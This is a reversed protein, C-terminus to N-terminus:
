LAVSWDTVLHSMRIRRWKVVIESAGVWTGSVMWRYGKSGSIWVSRFSVLQGIVCYDVSGNVLKNVQQWSQDCVTQITVPFPPFLDGAAILITWPLSPRLLAINDAVDVSSARPLGLRTNRACPTRWPSTYVQIESPATDATLPRCVSHFVPAYHDSTDWPLDRLLM